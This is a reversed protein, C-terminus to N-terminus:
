LLQPKCNVLMMLPAGILRLPYPTNREEHPKALADLVNELLVGEFPEGEVGGRYPCPVAATSALFVRASSPPSSRRLEKTKLSGRLPGVSGSATPSHLDTEAATTASRTM